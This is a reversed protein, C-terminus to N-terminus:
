RPVDTKNRLTLKTEKTSGCNRKYTCRLGCRKITVSKMKHIHMGPSYYIPWKMWVHVKSGATLGKTV